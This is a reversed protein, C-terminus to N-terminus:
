PGLIHCNPLAESLQALGADTVRTDYLSLSELETLKQLHPLGADTIQTHDLALRQLGMLGQLHALGADTVQTGSLGLRQLGIMEKLHALGTDTVQNHNLELEQLSTLHKLHDLGADTLRTGYLYIEQLGTLNQLHALEADTVQTGTISVEAVKDRYARPLWRWFPSVTSKNVVYTVNGGLAQIAAVARRQREAPAVRVALAVCSVSVVALMTRMSFQVWRRKPKTETFPAMGKLM